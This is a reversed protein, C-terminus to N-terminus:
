THYCMCSVLGSLFLCVACILFDTLSVCFRATVKDAAVDASGLVILEISIWFEHTIQLSCASFIIGAYVSSAYVFACQSM